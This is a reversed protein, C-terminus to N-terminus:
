AGQSALAYKKNTKIVANHDVLYALAEKLEPGDLQTSLKIESLTMGEHDLADLIKKFLSKSKNVYESLSPEKGNGNTKTAAPPNLDTEIPKRARPRIIVKPFKKKLAAMLVEMSAFPGMHSHALIMYRSAEGKKEDPSRFYVNIKDLQEQLVNLKSVLKAKRAELRGRRADLKKHAAPICTPDDWGVWEVFNDFVQKLDLETVSGPIVAQRLVADDGVDSIKEEESM